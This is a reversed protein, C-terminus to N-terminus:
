TAGEPPGIVILDFDLDPAAQRVEEVVLSADTGLAAIARYRGHFGLEQLRQGLEVADFEASSLPSLVMDPPPDLLAPGLEGFSAFKVDALQPLARNERRWKTLDGIVLIM